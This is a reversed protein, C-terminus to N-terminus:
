MTEEIPTTYDFRHIIYLDIYDTQLRKLSHDIETMIAKRSTGSGNPAERMQSCLKTAIVIDDRNAYDKLARGLYEESTGLSYVNATDFFNIGLDIAHKIIERSKQEDLVWSHIWKTADGFGMCGLCIKSIDMGTNGLKTYEM